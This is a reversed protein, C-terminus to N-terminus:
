TGLRIKATHEAFDIPPGIGALVDELPRPKDIGFGQAYCVGLQRLREIVLDTEVHEAVVAASMVDAIRVLSIVIAESLPNELIDRIFIGDVKVYHVPLDKLYAFSCYGTGFDDLAVRCGLHRLRAIFYQAMELSRVVSTETIEFCIADPPVGSEAIQNEVFELFERDMLSQASVNISFSGLGVELPNDAASLQDLTRRVVWRDIAGMMQYREAASLFENPPLIEGQEDLMRVLIEYRPATEGAQLPKIPQAFLVFRDDLLASQLRGVQDLDSRRQVVSADLDRFVVLQSGGRGKASRMAIAATSLAAEANGVVDPILAVGISATVAVSKKDYEVIEDSVSQLILDARRGIVEEDAGRLFLGFEDGGLNAVIDGHTAVDNLIRHVNRIVADGAMHGFNDNVVHLKDIDVVLVAHSTTSERRIVEEVYHLFDHRSFPGTRTSEPASGLANIRAAIARCLRIQDPSFPSRAALAYIGVVEDRADFIPACVVYSQRITSRTVKRHIKAKSMLSGLMRMQQRGRQEDGNATDPFVSQIGHAPLLAASFTADFHGASRELLSQITDNPNGNEDLADLEAILKLGLRGERTLRRVASLGANIDIQREVCRIVPDIAEHVNKINRAKPSGTLVSLMGIRGSVSAHHLEFVYAYNGSDQRVAVGVGAERRSPLADISWSEADADGPSAWIVRGAADHIVVARADDLAEVIQAAFVSMSGADIHIAITTQNM